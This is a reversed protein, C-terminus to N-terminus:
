CGYKARIESLHSEIRGLMELGVRDLGSKKTNLHKAIQNLNNGVKALEILFDRNISSKKKELKLNLMCSLAYSTFNQEAERMREQIKHWENESLRLRKTFCKM